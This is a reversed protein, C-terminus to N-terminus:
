SFDFNGPPDEELIEVCLYPWHWLNVFTHKTSSSSCLRSKMGVLSHAPNFFPFFTLSAWLWVCSKIESM